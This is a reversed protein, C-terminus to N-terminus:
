RILSNVIQGVRDCAAEIRTATESSKFSKFSKTAPSLKDVHCSSIAREKVMTTSDPRAKHRPTPHLLSAHQTIDADDASSRM